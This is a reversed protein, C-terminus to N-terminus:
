RARRYLSYLIKYALPYNLPIWEPEKILTVKEGYWLLGWKDPIDEPTLLGEPCLYFQYNASANLARHPKKKDRNFDSRSIKVEILVTKYSNFGFVDPTEGAITVLESIVNGCNYNSNQTKWLWKVGIQCLESHTM